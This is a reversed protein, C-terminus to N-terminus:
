FSEIGLIKRRIRDVDDMTIVGDPSGAPYVDGHLLQGPTPVALGFAIREALALDAADVLGDGNLDGDASGTTSASPGSATQDSVNSLVTVSAIQMSSISQNGLDRSDAVNPNTGLITEIVDPVGDKDTDVYAATRPPLVKLVFATRVAEGNWSGDTNQSAILYNLAGGTAPDSPRLARLVEYVMATALVTSSNEDGFGGDPKSKQTLLWSIGNDIATQLTTSVCPLSTWNNASKLADIELINSATPLIASGIASVPATSGPLIYSWSGNVTADGSKQAQLMKCLPDTGVAGTAYEGTKRLASSALSTDPFSTEFGKYGGWALSSNRWGLLKDRLSTVNVQAGVLASIQRSLSDVSPASNNTLWSVGQAYSFNKLGSNNFAELATATATFETGATSRWSGDAKQYNILWALAKDRASDVAPSQAKVIGPLGLVLSIILYTLPRTSSRMM